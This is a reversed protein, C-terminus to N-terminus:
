LASESSPPQKTKRSSRSVPSSVTAVSACRGGRVAERERGVLRDQVHGVRRDRPSAPPLWWMRANSTMSPPLRSPAGRTKATMSGPTDPRNGADVDVAVDPGRGAVPDVHQVGRRRRARAPDHEGLRGAVAREAAGVAPPQEDGRRRRQPRDLDPDAPRDRGPHISHRGALRRATAPITSSPRPRAPAGRGASASAGLARRDRRLALIAAALLGANMANGIASRPSRCAARCRSSRSCRTSGAWTSPRSRCASSRCSDDERRADRAPPRRGRGRRRDGPDRPRGGGRCLPVAPRAHSAGVRGPARGPRRARRPHRGRGRADPLGLPQRRRHRRDPAVETM